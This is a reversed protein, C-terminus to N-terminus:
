SRRSLAPQTGGPPGGTANGAAQPGPFAASRHRRHSGQGARTFPRGSAMRDLDHMANRAEGLDALIEGRARRAASHGGDISLVWNLIAVAGRADGHQWLALALQTQLGLDNPAREVAARLETLADNLEGEAVYSRYCGCIRFWSWRDATKM